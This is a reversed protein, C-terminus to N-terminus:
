VPVVSRYVVLTVENSPSGVPVNDNGIMRIIYAYQATNVGEPLETIDLYYRSLSIGIKVFSGGPTDQRWVEYGKFNRLPCNLQAQGNVIKGKLLPMDGDEYKSIPRNDLGLAKSLTANMNPNTRLNAVLSTIWAHENPPVQDAPVAPGAPVPEYETLELELNAPDGYIMINRNSYCKSLFGDFTTICNGYYGLGLNFKNVRALVDVTIGLLVKNADLVTYFNALWAPYESPTPPFYYIRPTEM